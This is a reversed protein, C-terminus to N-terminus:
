FFLTQDGPPQIRRAVEDGRCAGREGWRLSQLDKVKRMECSLLFHELEDDERIVESIM